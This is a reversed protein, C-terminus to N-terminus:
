GVCAGTAIDAVLPLHDSRLDPGKVFAVSTLCPGLYVQDLPLRLNGVPSAAPWTGTLGSVLRLDGAAALRRMAFTWPASNFDGLLVGGRGVTTVAMELEASFAAQDGVPWPRGLHVATVPIVQGAVEFRATVASLGLRRDPDGAGLPWVDQAPRRSLIVTSCRGTARCSYVHPYAAKLRAVAGGQGHGAELLVLIDADQSLIWDVAGGIDPNDKYINFSVIRLQGQGQVQGQLLANANASAPYLPWMLVCALAMGAVLLAFAAPRSRRSTCAVVIGTVILMGIWYPALINLTDAQVMFVGALSTVMISVDFVLIMAILPTLFRRQVRSM